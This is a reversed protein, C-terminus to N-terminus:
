RGLLRQLWGKRREADLEARLREAEQKADEAEKQAAPLQLAQQQMDALQKYAGALKDAQDAVKILLAKNENRLQQLEQQLDTQAVVVPNGQRKDDLYDVAWDDLVQVRGQQKIHGELEDAYRRVQKRVAEYSVGCKHAYDKMTMAVSVLGKCLTGEHNNYLTTHHNHLQNQQYPSRRPRETQWDPSWRGGSGRFPSKKHKGWCDRM